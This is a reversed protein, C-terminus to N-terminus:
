FIKRYYEKLEELTSFVPYPLLLRVSANPHGYVYGRIATTKEGTGEYSTVVMKEIHPPEPVFFYLIDRAMPEYGSNKAKNMLEKLDEVPNCGEPVYGEEFWRAM